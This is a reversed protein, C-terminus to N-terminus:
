EIFIGPRWQPVMSNMCSSNVVQPMDWSNQAASGYGGVEYAGHQVRQSRVEMRLSDISLPWCDSQGLLLAGKSVPNVASKNVGSLCWIVQNTIPSQDAGPISPVNCGSPTPGIWFPQRLWRWESWMAIFSEAHTKWWFTLHTWVQELSCAAPWTLHGALPM